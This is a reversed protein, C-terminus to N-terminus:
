AAAARQPVIELQEALAQVHVKRLQLSRRVEDLMVERADETGPLDLRNRLQTLRQSHTNIAVSHDEPTLKQFEDVSILDVKTM